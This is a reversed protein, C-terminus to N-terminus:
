DSAMGTPREPGRGVTAVRFVVQFTKKKEKEGEKKEGSPECPLLARPFRRGGLKLFRKSSVPLLTSAQMGCSSGGGVCFFLAVVVIMRLFWARDTWRNSNLDAFFFYRTYPFFM